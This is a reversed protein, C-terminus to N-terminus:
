ESSGRGQESGVQEPRGILEGRVATGGAGECRSSAPLMAAKVSAASVEEAGRASPRDGRGGRWYGREM